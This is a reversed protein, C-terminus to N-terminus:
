QRLEAGEGELVMLGLLCGLPQAGGLLGGRGDAFPRREEAFGIALGFL